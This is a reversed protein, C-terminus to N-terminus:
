EAKCCGECTYKLIFVDQVQEINRLKSKLEEINFECSIATFIGFHCLEEKKCYGTSTLIEFDEEKLNSLVKQVLAPNVEPTLIEVLFVTNYNTPYISLHIHREGHKEERPTAIFFFEFKNLGIKEEISQPLNWNKISEKDYLKGHFNVISEEM